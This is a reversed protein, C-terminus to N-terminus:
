EEEEIVKYANSGCKCCPQRRVEVNAYIELEDIFGCNKCKKTIM